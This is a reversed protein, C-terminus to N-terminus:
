VWLNILGNIDINLELKVRVREREWVIDIVIHGFVIVVINMVTELPFAYWTNNFMSYWRLNILWVCLKFKICNLYACFCYKYIKLDLRVIGIGIHRLQCINVRDTFKHSVGLMHHDPWCVVCYILNSIKLYWFYCFGLLYCIVFM